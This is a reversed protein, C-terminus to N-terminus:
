AQCPINNHGLIYKHTFTPTIHSLLLCAPDALFSSMHIATFLQAIIKENDPPLLKQM